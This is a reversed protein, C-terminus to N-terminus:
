SAPSRGERALDLLLQLLALEVADQEVLRLEQGAGLHTCSAEIQSSSSM